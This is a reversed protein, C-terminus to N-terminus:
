KQKSFCYFTFGIGFFLERGNQHTLGVKCFCDLALTLVHSSALLVPPGDVPFPLFSPPSLFFFFVSKGQLLLTCNSIAPSAMFSLGSIVDRSQGKRLEVSSPPFSDSILQMGPVRLPALRGGALRVGQRRTPM